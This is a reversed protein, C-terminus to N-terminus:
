RAPLPVSSRGSGALDAKGEPAKEFAETYDFLAAYGTWQKEFEARGLRRLGLAPDAVRVRKADVDYLVLWHNGEWHVIAPLPM